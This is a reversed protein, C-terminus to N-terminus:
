DGPNYLQGSIADNWTMFSPNDRSVGTGIQKPVCFYGNSKLRDTERKLDKTGVVRTTNIDKRKM